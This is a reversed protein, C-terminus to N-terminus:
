GDHLGLDGLEQIAGFVGGLREVVAVLLLDFLQLVDLLADGVHHGGLLTELQLLCRELLLDDLEVCLGTLRNGGALLIKRPRSEFALVDGLGLQLREVGLHGFEFSLLLLQGFRLLLQRALISDKLVLFSTM